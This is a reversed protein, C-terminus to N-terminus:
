GVFQIASLNFTLTLFANQGVVTASFGNYVGNNYDNPNQTTYTSFPVATVTASLLCGFQV